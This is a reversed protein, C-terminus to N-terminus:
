QLLLMRETKEFGGARLRYFYVGNTLGVANLTAQYTGAEQLHDVLSGIRQGLQDFIELQVSLRQPIHYRIVTQANFPNPYNRHLEYGDPIM